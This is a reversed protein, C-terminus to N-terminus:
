TGFATELNRKKNPDLFFGLFEGLPEFPRPNDMKTKKQPNYLISLQSLRLAFGLHITFIVLQKAFLDVKLNLPSFM